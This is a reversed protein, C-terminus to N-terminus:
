ANVRIFATLYGYDDVLFKADSDEQKKVLQQLFETAPDSRRRDFTDDDLLVMSDLGIAAYM